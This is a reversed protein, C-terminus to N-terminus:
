FTNTTRKSNVAKITVKLPSIKASSIKALLFKRSNAGKERSNRRAFNKLLKRNAFIEEAFFFKEWLFLAKKQQYM